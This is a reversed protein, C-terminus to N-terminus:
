RSERLPRFRRLWRVPSERWRGHRNGGPLGGAVARSGTDRQVNVETRAHRGATEAERVPGRVKRHVEKDGGRLGLANTLQEGFGADHGLVVFLGGDLLTDLNRDLRGDVVGNGHLVDVGHELQLDSRLDGRFARDVHIHEDFVGLDILPIGRM